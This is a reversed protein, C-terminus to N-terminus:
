IGLDTYKQKLKALRKDRADRLDKESLGMARMAMSQRARENAEFVEKLALQNARYIRRLRTRSKEDVDGHKEMCSQCDLVFARDPKSLKIRRLNSVLSHTNLGDPDTVM